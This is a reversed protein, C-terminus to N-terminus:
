VRWERIIELNLIRKLIRRYYFLDGVNLLVLSSVQVDEPFNMSDPRACKLIKSGGGGIGRLFHAFSM